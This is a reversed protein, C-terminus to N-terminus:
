ANLEASRVYQVGLGSDQHQHQYPYRQQQGRYAYQDDPAPSGYNSHQLRAGDDYQEQPYPTSANHQILQHLGQQMMEGESQPPPTQAM